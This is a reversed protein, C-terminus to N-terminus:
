PNICVEIEYHQECEQLNVTYTDDLSSGEVTHERVESISTIYKGDIVYSTLKRNRIYGVSWQRTRAVFNFKGPMLFRLTRLMEQAVRFPPTQEKAVKFLNLSLRIDYQRFSPLFSVLM